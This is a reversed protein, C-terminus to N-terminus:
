RQNFHHKEILLTMNKRGGSLSHQLTHQLYVEVLAQHHAFDCHSWKKHTAMGCLKWHHLYHQTLPRHESYLQLFNKIGRNQSLPEGMQIFIRWYYEEFYYTSVLMQVNSTYKLGGVMVQYLKQM